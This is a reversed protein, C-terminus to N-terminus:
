AWVQEFEDAVFIPWDLNNEVRLTVPRAPHDVCSPCAPLAAASLLAALLPAFPVRSPHARV